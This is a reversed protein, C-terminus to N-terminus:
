RTPSTTCIRTRASTRLLPEYRAKMAAWDVGHMKEDYFRYKMVRWCEDFM